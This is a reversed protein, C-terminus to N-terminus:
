WNKIKCRSCRGLSYIKGKDDVKPKAYGMIRAGCECYKKIRPKRKQITERERQSYVEM